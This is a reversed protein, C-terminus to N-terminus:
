DQRLLLVLVLVLVAFPCYRSRRYLEYFSQGPTAMTIVPRPKLRVPSPSPVRSRTRRHAARNRLELQAVDRHPEAGPRVRRARHVADVVVDADMRMELRPIRAARRELAQVVCHLGTRTPQGQIDRDGLRGQRECGDLARPALLRTCHAARM